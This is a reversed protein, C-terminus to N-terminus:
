GTWALRPPYDKGVYVVDQGAGRRGTTARAWMFYVEKDFMSVPCESPEVPVAKCSAAVLETKSYFANM